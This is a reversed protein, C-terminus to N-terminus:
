LINNIIDKMKYYREIVLSDVVEESNEEKFEEGVTSEIADNKLEENEAAFLWLIEEWGSVRIIDDGIENFINHPAPFLIKKNCKSTILNNIYDDIIYDGVILGKNKATIINDKSIHPFWKEIWQFKDIINQPYVCATVVYLEYYKSLLETVRIANPKPPVNLLFNDKTTLEFINVGQKIYEQINWSLINDYYLNDNYEQNYVEVLSKLFESLVDDLDILITQKEKNKM